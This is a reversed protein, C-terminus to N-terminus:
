LPRCSSRGAGGWWRVTRVRGIRLVARARSATAALGGDVLALHAGAQGLLAAPRHTAVLTACGTARLASLVDSLMTLGAADLAGTPEDLCLM